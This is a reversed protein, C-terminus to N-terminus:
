TTQREVVIPTITIEEPIEPPPAGELAQILHNTVSRAKAPIFQNMTSLKLARAMRIDDFGMLALDEPLSLGKERCYEMGGIAMTDCAYFVADPSFRSLLKETAEYGGKLSIDSMELQLSSDFPIGREELYRLFGMKRDMSKSDYRNEGWYILGFQRYGRGWLYAAADYGGMYDNNMVTYFYPCRTHVAAVPLNMERFFNRAAEDITCFFVVAADVLDAWSSNRNLFESLSSEEGTDILLPYLNHTSLEKQLAIIFDM